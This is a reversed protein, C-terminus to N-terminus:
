LDRLKTSDAQQAMNDDPNCNVDLSIARHDDIPLSGRAAECQLQLFCHKFHDVCTGRASQVQHCLLPTKLAFLARSLVTKTIALTATHYQATMFVTRAIECVEFARLQRM